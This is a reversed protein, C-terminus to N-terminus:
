PPQVEDFHNNGRAAAHSHHRGRVDVCSSTRHGGAKQEKGDEGQEQRRAQAKSRPVNRRVTLKETLIEDTLIELGRSKIKSFSVIKERRKFILNRISPSIKGEM